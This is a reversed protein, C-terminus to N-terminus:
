KDFPPAAVDKLVKILENLDLPEVFGKMEAVKMAEDSEKLAFLASKIKKSKEADFGAQAVAVWEPYLPTTTILTFGKNTKPEVVVVDDMKLKGKKVLDELMGTRIFGADAVGVKVTLVIDDQKNSVKYSAFDKNVDIGKQKLYYHQFVNAGASKGITYTLVNKGKLDEATKIGSKKSAIIVGGFQSGEPTVLSAIPVAKNVDVLGAAVVPNTLLMDMEKASFSEVNRELKSPVLIVKEGVKETLYESFKTWAETAQLEGRHALVGFKIDAYAQSIGGCLAFAALSLATFKKM